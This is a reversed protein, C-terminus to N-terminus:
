TEQRVLGLVTDRVQEMTGPDRAEVNLRLLAETNSPRLSLWWSPQQEHALALGDFGDPELGQRLGWDRVRATAAGVDAVVSSIEGSAVYGGGDGVLRSLPLPQHGLAALVHLAALMGSDAHWFDRFYYHASHEAGFAAHHRAMLEKVFSHGVPSRVARAGLAAIAEPLVRSAVSGHVVSVEAPTHGAAVEAAVVSRAILAAIHGPAVPRGTEDVVACRDADGDFALGLDAGHELVADQLLRLNAPDLPDPGRHPFTGDLEHHLPVMLVPLHAPLVAPATRGAMGSGADVVVRLPRVESLDVLSHLHAAYRELLDARDFTGRRPAARESPPHVASRELSWRALDRIEALGTDIGVPRAGSRCLKIGNTSAPGHSATVMAGALRLSGAAYYLEDTSCLGIATVDVGQDRVGAVFADALEPSSTRMDHGVVVGAEGEPLVVVQAFASGLARVVEADLQDPVEGRIDNAKVVQDLRTSM